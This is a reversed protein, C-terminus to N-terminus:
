TYTPRAPLPQASEVSGKEFEVLLKGKEDISVSSAMCVRLSATTLLLLHAANKADRASHATKSAQSLQHAAQKLKPVLTHLEPRLQPYLLSITAFDATSVFNGRSSRATEIRKRAWQETPGDQVSEKPHLLGLLAPDAVGIDINKPNLSRSLFKKKLIKDRKEWYIYQAYPAISVWLSLASKKLQPDTEAEAEALAGDLYEWSENLPLQALVEDGLLLCVFYDHALRARDSMTVISELALKLTTPDMYEELRFIEPAPPPDRLVEASRITNTRPQRERFKM